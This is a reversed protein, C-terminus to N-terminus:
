RATAHLGSRYQRPFWSLAYCAVSPRAFLSSIHASPAYVITASSRQSCSSLERYLSVPVRTEKAPHYTHSHVFGALTNHRRRISESVAIAKQPQQTVNYMPPASFLFLRVVHQMSYGQGKLFFPDFMVEGGAFQVSVNSPYSPDRFGARVPPVRSM